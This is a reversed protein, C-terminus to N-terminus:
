LLFRLSAAVVAKTAPPLDSATWPHKRGFVHDTELTYLIAAPQWEKLLLASALPVGTDQTGQCILVPITLNQIAKKIDLKQANNTYDEFLQYYLPMHQNTRSNTYYQVGDKKWEEMKEAAWNGWPTKCQSIAAWTVLKKIREDAAAYLIAIGGGMSHGILYVKKRDIHKAYLNATDCVWDTVLKVDNLEISYNNEGFAELDAFEEPQQPTTGNHSFNFKVFVFGAESFKEAVLDFNGWDKFGSFGHAYIIVPKQIMEKDFFIDLTISRNGSGPIVINKVKQVM